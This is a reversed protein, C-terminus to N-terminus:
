LKWNDVPSTKTHVDVIDQRTFKLYYMATELDSHGLIDRLTHVDMGNRLSAIAFTRRFRHLGTPSVGARKGVRQLARFLGNVQLRGMRGIWLPDTPQLQGRESLYKLLTKRTRASLRVYREKRGKGIVKIAGDEEIDEINLSVFESARLGSDLLCLIAARDRNETEGECAALLKKIEKEDFPPLIKQEQKPMKVKVMPSEAILEEAVLFRLWTKICRAFQHQYSSSLGQKEMDVLFSRIHHASIDVPSSVGQAALYNNFRNLNYKYLAITRPSHHSSEQHLLFIELSTKLTLQTGFKPL